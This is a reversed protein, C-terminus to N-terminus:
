DAIWVISDDVAYLRCAGKANRNCTDLARKAPNTGGGAWAWSGTPAIAFARPQDTVLFTEYGKRGSDKVFPLKDVENLLAFNSPPPVQMWPREAFNAYQAQPQYPMDLSQMFKLLEPQWIAAGKTAAFLSHADSGFQGFAVLRAAGGAASYREHMPRFTSPSFFSDNDGYFWLSPVRTEQGYAAAGSALGREWASCQEQRLGGAFNVLGKVGPYNLAGFALTTWGGHSQGLILLQGREAWPQAVVHDVVAKLDEAQARGNSEVNCGGSIYNGGSKSFGQRMPVVVAYGRQMFFRVAMLPRYRAQFRTDGPSKGHNIFVVPFPGAGDPKFLTTELEVPFTRNNKIRVITENLAADLTEQGWASFSCLFFFFTLATRVLGARASRDKSQLMM